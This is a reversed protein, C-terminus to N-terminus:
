DGAGSKEVFDELLHDFLGADEGFLEEINFDEGLLEEFDFDEGFLDDLDLGELAELGALADSAEIGEDGRAKRFWRDWLDVVAPGDEGADDVLHSRLTNTSVLAFSNEDVFSKLSETLADWGILDAVAFYFGPAKGYIIAGYQLSSEFQDSPQEAAADPVGLARAQAYQDITQAECIDRWNDPHIRQMAICASFQALPEDVAPSEISDNGVTAHGWEHGLEHAVTWEISTTLPDGGIAELVTGFGHDGFLEGLDGMGPLGGAFISQEIWVAGPWEM